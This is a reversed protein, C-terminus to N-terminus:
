SPQRTLLDAPVDPRVEYSQILREINHRRMIGGKLMGQDLFRQFHPRAEPYKGTKIAGQAYLYTEYALMDAAQLGIFSGSKQFTISAVEPDSGAHQRYFDFIRNLVDGDRQRDDFVIALKDNPSFDKAQNIADRICHSLCYEDPSRLYKKHDGVVLEDWDKVSAASGLGFMQHRLIVERFEYICNDRKGIPWGQFEGRGHVCPYMHFSRIEWKKLLARWEVDLSLWHDEPGIFGAWVVAKSDAHTGSDDFYATLVIICSRDCGSPRTLRVWDRMPIPANM